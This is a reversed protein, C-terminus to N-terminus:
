IETPRNGSGNRGTQAFRCRSRLPCEDCRPTPRCVAAGLDLLAWNVRRPAAGRILRQGISRILPNKRLEGRALSIGFARSLIRAVNVDLAIAQQGFAFCATAASSYDGIGPLTQLRAASRPIPKGDIARALSVLQESRQHGFGLTAIRKALASADARALAGASPYAGFVSSRVDGVRDARTQKLLVETVLVRYADREKRWPFPRYHKHGWVLLRRRLWRIDDPRDYMLAPQM